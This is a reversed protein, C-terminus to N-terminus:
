LLSLTPVPMRYSPEAESGFAKQNQSPTGTILPEFEDILPITFGVDKCAQTNFELVALELVWPYFGAHTWDILSIRGDPMWILNRPAIDNHNLAFEGLEVTWGQQKGVLRNQIHKEFRAVEGKLNVPEQEWWLGRSIGGELPGPISSKHTQLHRIIDAIRKVSDLDEIKDRVEGHIRQM